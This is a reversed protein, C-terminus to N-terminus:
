KLFIQSFHVTFSVNPKTSSITSCSKSNRIPLRFTSERKVSKSFLSFTSPKDSVSNSSIKYRTVISGIINKISLELFNDM